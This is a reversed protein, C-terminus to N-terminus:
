FKEQEEVETLVELIVPRGVGPISPQNGNNSLQQLLLLLITLDDSVFFVGYYEQLIINNM